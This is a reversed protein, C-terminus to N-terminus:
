FAAVGGSFAGAASLTAHAAQRVVDEIAEDYEEEDEEMQEVKEEFEKYGECLECECDEEECDACKNTQACKCTECKGGQSSIWEM